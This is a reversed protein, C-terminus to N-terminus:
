FNLCDETNSQKNITFKYIIKQNALEPLDYTFFTMPLVLLICYRLLYLVLKFLSFTCFYRERRKRSFNDQGYRKSVKKKREKKENQKNFLYTVVIKEEIDMEVKCRQRFKYRCMNDSQQMVAM